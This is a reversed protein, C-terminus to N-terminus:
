QVLVPVLPGNTGGALGAGACPSSPLSANGIYELYVTVNPGDIPHLMLVCAWDTVTTGAVIPALV